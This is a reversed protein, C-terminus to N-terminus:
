RCGCLGRFGVPPSIALRDSIDYARSTALARIGAAAADNDVREGVGVGLGQRADSEQRRLVVRCAGNGGGVVWREVEVRTVQAVEVAEM